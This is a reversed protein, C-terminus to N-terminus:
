PSDKRPLLLYYTGNERMLGAGIGADKGFGFFLDGRVPGQIASGTDQALVLRRLPTKSKGPQPTNLWVPVGLPIYKRDVALSRGATLM